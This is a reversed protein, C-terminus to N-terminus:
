FDEQGNKIQSKETLEEKEQTQNSNLSLFNLTGYYQKEIESFVRNLVYYVIGIPMQSEQILTSINKYLLEIKLNINDM